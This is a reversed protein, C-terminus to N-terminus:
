DEDEVLCPRGCLKEFLRQSAQNQSDISASLKDNSAANKAIADTCSISTALLKDTSEKNDSRWYKLGVILVAVLTVCLGGLITKTVPDIAQIVTEEM